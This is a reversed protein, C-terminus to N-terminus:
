FLSFLFPEGFETEPMQKRRVSGRNSDSIKSPLIERHSHWEFWRAQIWCQWQWQWNCREWSWRLYKPLHWNWWCKVSLKKYLLAKRLKERIVYLKAKCNKPAFYQRLINACFSSTLHQPFQSCPHNEVHDGFLRCFWTCSPFM